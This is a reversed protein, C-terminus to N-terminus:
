FLRAYMRYDQKDYTFQRLTGEAEFKLWTLWRHHLEDAPASTQMRHYKFTIAIQEVYARMTKAFTLAYQPVYITPMMWVECVGMDADLFGACMLIRGDHSFTGAQKSRKWLGEIKEYAAPMNSIIKKEHDRLVAIELHKPHFPVVEM